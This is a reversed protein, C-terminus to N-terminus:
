SRRQNVSQRRWFAATKFKTLNGNTIKRAPAQNPALRPQGRGHHYLNVRGHSPRALRFQPSESRTRQHGSATLGLPATFAAVELRETIVYAAILHAVDGPGGRGAAALKDGPLVLHFPIL